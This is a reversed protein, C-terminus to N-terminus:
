FPIVNLIKGQKIEMRDYYYTMSKDNVKERFLAMDSNIEAPKLGAKKILDVVTKSMKNRMDIYFERASDNEIKKLRLVDNMNKAM